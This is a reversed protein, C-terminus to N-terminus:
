GLTEFSGCSANCCTTGRECTTPGCTELEVPVCKAKGDIVQCETDKTCRVTACADTNDGPVPNALATSAFLALALRHYPFLM